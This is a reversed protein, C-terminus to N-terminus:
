KSLPLELELFDQAVITNPFVKKAQELLLETDTYRASIHTLVLLKADAAKAQAAAQSPTSHGDVDAREKLADEFTAEHIVLDADAAFAAFAEFPKTDGSYVIKRGKRPAESVEETKVVRGDPLVFDVGRQLLSWAEGLPVGLAQAKEPHFKGARPKEEFAYGFSVMSHNTPTASVTYEEQDCVVGSGEFEHVTVEFTLQFQLTERTCELFRALGVPGYVDVPKQRNMLAMTQLLGPLGLVHDGHLHTIFIHMGKHLGTKATIMQRQVAEGCDFLLQENGRQLLVAPLSRKATPVAASTGLFVVRLSM